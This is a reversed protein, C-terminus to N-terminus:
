GYKVEGLNKKAAMIQFNTGFLSFDNMQFIAQNFISAYHSKDKVYVPRGLVIANFYLMPCRFSKFIPLINVEAAFQESLELTIDNAAKFMAAEAEDGCSFVIAIDIDSKIKAQGRAFSGFLFAAEILYTEAKAQFYASLCNIINNKDLM